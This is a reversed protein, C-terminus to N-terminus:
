SLLDLEEMAEAVMQIRMGIYQMVQVTMSNGCAAYRKSDSAGPIDTHGDPFGQLRECELPTLRRVMTGSMAIDGQRGMAQNANKTLTDVVRDNAGHAVIPNNGHTQARLTGTIGDEYVSMVNGGQDDLIVPQLISLDQGKSLTFALEDSGLYGKGGGECGGREKSAHVLLPVHAGKALTHCPAGPVPNSGNQPSTIQTTDYIVSSHAVAHPGSSVLCPSTESIEIKPDYLANAGQNFAARDIVVLDTADKYDRKKMTSATGDEAYEGIATMRCYASSPNLESTRVGNIGAEVQGSSGNIGTFASGTTRKRKKGGPTLDRRLSERELLVAAPPRWDTGLHGVIFIRRRRQPVGFYQSDYCRWAISYFSGELIGAKAFKCATIDSGTFGSLISAFDQGGNSSLVGPVNEWVFWEPRKEDLIRIYELSLQSREDDLGGRLGAISFGQCPTGGALLDFKTDHYTKQTRLELMNGLNPVGPFRHELVKSPFDPGKTYDHEPDYQSFWVPDWGLPHWAM